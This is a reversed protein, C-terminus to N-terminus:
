MRADIAAFRQAGAQDTATYAQKTKKLDEIQNQVKQRLADHQQHLRAMSQTLLSHFARTSPAAGPQTVHGLEAVKSEHQDMLDLVSTLRRIASDIAAPDFRFEEGM